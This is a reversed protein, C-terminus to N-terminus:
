ISNDIVYISLYIGALIIAISSLIEMYSQVSYMVYKGVVLYVVISLLLITIACAITTTNTKTSVYVDIIMYIYAYIDRVATFFIFNFMVFFLHLTFYVNIFDIASKIYSNLVILHFPIFEPELYFIRFYIIIIILLIYLLVHFWVLLGLQSCNSYYVTIIPYIMTINGISYHLIINMYRLLGNRIYILSELICYNNKIYEHLMFLFKFLCGIYLIAFIFTSILIFLSVYMEVFENIRKYYFKYEKQYILECILFLIITAIIIYVYINSSFLYQFTNIIVYNINKILKYQNLLPLLIIVLYALINYMLLTTFIFIMMLAILISYLHIFATM